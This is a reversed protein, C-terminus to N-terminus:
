SGFVYVSCHGWDDPVTWYAGAEYTYEVFKHRCRVQLSTLQGNVDDLMFTGRYLRNHSYGRENVKITSTLPSKDVLLDLMKNYSPQLKKVLENADDITQLKEFLSKAMGLNQMALAVSFAEKIYRLYDSNTMMEPRELLANLSQMQQQLDGTMAAVQFTSSQYYYEENTNRRGRESMAELEAQALKRNDKAIAKKLKQFRRNFWESIGLRRSDGNFAFQIRTKTMVQEVPGDAGM